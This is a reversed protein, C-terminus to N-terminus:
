YTQVTTLRISTKKRSWFGKGIEYNKKKLSTCYPLIRCSNRMKERLFASSNFRNKIHSFSDSCVVKTWESVILYNYFSKQIWLTILCDMRCHISEAYFWLVIGEVVCLLANCWHFAHVTSITRPEVTGFDMWHLKSRGYIPNTALM